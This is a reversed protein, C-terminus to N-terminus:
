HPDQKTRLMVEGEGEKRVAGGRRRAWQRIALPLWPSELTISPGAMGGHRWVMGFGKEIQTRAPWGQFLQLTTLAPLRRGDEVGKCVGRRISINPGRECHNV